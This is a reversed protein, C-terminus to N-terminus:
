EADYFFYIRGDPQNTRRTPKTNLVFDLEKKTLTQKYYERIGNNSSKCGSYILHWTTGKTPHYRETIKELKM